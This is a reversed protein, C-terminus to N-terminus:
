KNFGDLVLWYMLKWQWVDLNWDVFKICFFNIDYLECGFYTTFEM